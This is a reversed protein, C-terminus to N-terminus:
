FLKAGDPVPREPITLVVRGDGDDFGTVLVESKYGGIKKPPFNMVAIVQVGILEEKAYHDTVQASSKRTGIDPGFDITLKYAPKKAEPFDQAEIITGVRLEVKAFDDWSIEDFIKLKMGGHQGRDANSYPGPLV